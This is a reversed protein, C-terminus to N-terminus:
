RSHTRKAEIRAAIVECEVQINANLEKRIMEWLDAATGLNKFTSNQEYIVDYPIRFNPHCQRYSFIRGPSVAIILDVLTVERQQM